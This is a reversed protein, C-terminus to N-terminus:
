KNQPSDSIQTSKALKPPHKKYYASNAVYKEAWPKLNEIEDNNLSRIVKAPAGLVMSSPPIITGGTVLANAGVICNEGIEAGDLITAGMGILCNNGIKCAHIIASHGITVYDGIICPFEDALHVVSNDQVNSGEGIRIFNIDARVVANFWVSSSPGMEVDGIVVAGDAIFATEHIKPDKILFTELRRRVQHEM